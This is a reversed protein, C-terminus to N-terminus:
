KRAGCESVPMQQRVFKEYEDLPPLGIQARRREVDERRDMKFFELVGCREMKLQTGYLQARGEATSIRDSLYAFDKPSADGDDVARSMAQLAAKQFSRNRDAHQVLLWMSNSAEAGDKNARPWGCHKLIRRADLTNARDVIEMREIAQPTWPFTLNERVAQDAAVMPRLRDAIRDCEAAAATTCVGAYLSLLVITRRV